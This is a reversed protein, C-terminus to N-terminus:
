LVGQGNHRNRLSQALLHHANFHRKRAYRLRMERPRLTTYSPPPNMTGSGQYISGLCGYKAVKEGSRYGNLTIHKQGKTLFFRNHKMFKSLIALVGRKQLSFTDFVGFSLIPFNVNRYPRIFAQSVIHADDGVNEKLVNQM